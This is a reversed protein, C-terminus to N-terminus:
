RGATVMLGVVAAIGGWFISNTIVRGIGPKSEAEEQAAEAVAVAEEAAEVAKIAAQEAISPPPTPKPLVQIHACIRDPGHFVAMRGARQPRFLVSQGSFTDSSGLSVLQDFGWRPTVDIDATCTNQTGVTQVLQVCSCGPIRNFTQQPQPTEVRPQVVMRQRPAPAPAPPRPAPDYRNCAIGECAVGGYWGPRRAINDVSCGMDMLMEHADRRLHRDGSDLEAYVASWWDHSECWRDGPGAYSSIPVFILALLLRKM